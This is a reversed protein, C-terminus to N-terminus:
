EKNYNNSKNQALSLFTCIVAEVFCLQQFILILFKCVSNLLNAMKEMYFRTIESKNSPEDHWNTLEWTQEELVKMELESFLFM